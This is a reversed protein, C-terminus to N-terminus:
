DLASSRVYSAFGVESKNAGSLKKLVLGHVGVSCYGCLILLTLLRRPAHLARLSSRAPRAPGQAPRPASTPGLRAFFAAVLATLIQPVHLVVRSPADSTCTPLPLAMALLSLWRVLGM